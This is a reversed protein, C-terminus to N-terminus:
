ILMEWESAEKIRGEAIEIRVFAENRKAKEQKFVTTIYKPSDDKIIGAKVLLDQIIKFGSALNDGDRMRCSFLTYTIYASELPKKPLKSKNEIIWFDLLRKWKRKEIAYKSRAWRFNNMTKPLGLMEIVINNQTMIM